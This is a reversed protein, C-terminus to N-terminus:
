TAFPLRGPWGLRRGTTRLPYTAAQTLAVAELAFRCKAGVPGASPEEDVIQWQRHQAEVESREGGWPGLTRRFMPNSITAM